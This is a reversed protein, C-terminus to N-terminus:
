QGKGELRDLALNVTQLARQWGMRFANNTIERERETPYGDLSRREPDDRWDDMGVGVVPNVSMRDDSRV